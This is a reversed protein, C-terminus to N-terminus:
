IVQLALSTRPPREADNEAEPQNMENAGIRFQVNKLFEKSLDFIHCLFLRVQTTPHHNLSTM